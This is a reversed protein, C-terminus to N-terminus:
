AAAHEPEREGLALIEAALPRGLAASLGVYACSVRANVEIAVPGAVPHWVLDIGVFGRLGPMAQLAADALAQLRPWRVDRGETCLRQVGDFAVAGDAGIRIHQRNLSLLEARPAAEGPRLGCLLSLSLAEGEVWPQWTVREGAAARQAALAQAAARSACVQTAVAGAGDDPKVVWRQAQAAWHADLPTAVGQGALRALTRTKSAAVQLAAAESGLWRGAGVRAQCQALLEGTEPAVV